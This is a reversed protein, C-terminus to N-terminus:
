RTLEIMDCTLRWNQQLFHDLRELREEYNVKRFCHDMKTARHQVKEM